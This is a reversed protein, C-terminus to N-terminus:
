LRHQRRNCWRHPNRLIHRRVGLRLSSGPFTEQLWDWCAEVLAGAVGARRYEPAVWLSMLEALNGLEPGTIRVLGITTDNIEALYNRGDLAFYGRWYEERDDEGAARTYSFGFADPADLLARLRVSRWKAWDDPEIPYIKLVCVTHPLRGTAIPM